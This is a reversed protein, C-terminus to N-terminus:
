LDYELCFRFVLVFSIGFVGHNGPMRGSANQCKQVFLLCSHYNVEVTSFLLLCFLPIEEIEVLHEVKCIRGLSCSENHRCDLVPHRIYIDMRNCRTGIFLYCAVHGIVKIRHEHLIM